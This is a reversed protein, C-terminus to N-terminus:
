QLNLKREMFYASLMYYVFSSILAFIIEFVLLYHGNTSELLNIDSLLVNALVAHITNHITNIVLYIGVSAAMKHSNLSFGVAMSAYIHFYIRMLSVILLIALEIMYSWLRVSRFILMGDANRFFNQLEEFFSFGTMGIIVILFSVAAAAMSLITWLSSVINKALINTSPKVPLTHMLYGENGLLNVRFRNIAYFFMVSLVAGVLLAYFIIFLFSLIELIFNGGGMSFNGMSTQLSLAGGVNFRLILVMIVSAAMLLGYLLLMFRHTAKLEYKILKGLM